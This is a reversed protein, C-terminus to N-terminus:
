RTLDKTKRLNDVYMMIQTCTIMGKGVHSEMHKRVTDESKLMTKIFHRLVGSTLEKSLECKLYENFLALVGTLFAAAVSTGVANVCTLESEKVVEVKAVGPMILDPKPVNPYIVNPPKSAINLTSGSGLEFGTPSFTHESSAIPDISAEVGHNGVPTIVIVGKEDLTKYFMNLINVFVKVDNKSFESPPINVQWPIFVIRCKDVNQLVVDLAKILSAATHDDLCILNVEALPAIGMNVCPYRGVERIKKADIPICTNATDLPDKIISLAVSAELSGRSTKPMYLTNIRFMRWAKSYIPLDDIICISTMSGYIGMNHLLYTSLLQNGIHFPTPLYFWPMKYVDGSHKIGFNRFLMVVKSGLNKILANVTKVEGRIRFINFKRSLVDVDILFRHFIPVLRYFDFVDNLGKVVIVVDTVSSM